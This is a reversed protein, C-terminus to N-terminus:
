QLVLTTDTIISLITGTNPVSVSVDVKSRFTFVRFATLIVGRWPLLLLKQAGLVDVDQGFCSNSPVKTPAVDVLM